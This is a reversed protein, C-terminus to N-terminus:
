MGWPENEGCFRCKYVFSHGRTTSSDLRHFDHIGIKCLFRKGKKKRPYCNECLNNDCKYKGGGAYRSNRPLSSTTGNNAEEDSL